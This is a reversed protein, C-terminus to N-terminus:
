RAGDDIFIQLVTKIIIKCDTLFSQKQIYEKDIQMRDSFTIDSRGGVQWLGTLGPKVKTIKEYYIKMDDKERPLYPRPGVLSMDGKLVNIFQPWEDLSTKRLIKGTKTIRPDHKLKKYKEYEKKAEKNEDLYKKLIDDAGIVMSRFKYLKFIKGNQGIRLQDYFIPGNNDKNVIRLIWVVLMIPLLLIVGVLGGLIDVARKIIRYIIIRKERKQEKTNLKTISVNDLTRTKTEQM